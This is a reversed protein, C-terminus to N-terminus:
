KDGIVILARRRRAVPAGSAIGGGGMRVRLSEVWPSPRSSGASDAIFLDSKAFATFDGRAEMTDLGAAITADLFPEVDPWTVDDTHKHLFRGVPPKLLKLLVFKAQPKVGEKKLVRM